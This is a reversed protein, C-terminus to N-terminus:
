NVSGIGERPSGYHELGTIEEQVERELVPRGKDDGITVECGNTPTGVWPFWWMEAFKFM